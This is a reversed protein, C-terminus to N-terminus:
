DPGLHITQAAGDKTVAFRAKTWPAPALNGKANNSFGYAETPIGFINKDLRGNGNADHFMKIGYEGVPLDEARVEVRDGTVAVKLCRLCQEREYDVPNPFLGIMLYGRAPKIHDIIIILKGREPQALAAAPLAVVLYLCALWKFM